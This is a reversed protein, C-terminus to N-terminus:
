VATGRELNQRIELTYKDFANKLKKNFRANKDNIYDVDATDSARKKHFKERKEHQNLVDQKLRELAEPTTGANIKGYDFPNMTLATTVAQEQATKQQTKINQEALKNVRKEYARYSRDSAFANYGYTHAIDQKKRKQEAEWEAEQATQNLIDKEEKKKNKGKDNSSGEEDENDGGKKKFKKSSLRKYEEEVEAKNAKRGQNIKMRLQFLRNQLDSSASKPAELESADIENQDESKFSDEEVQPVEENDTKDTM